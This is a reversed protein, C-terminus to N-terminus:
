APVAHLPPPWQSRLWHQEVRGFPTPRPSPTASALRAAVVAEPLVTLSNEESFGPLVIASWRVKRGGRRATTPLVCLAASTGCGGFDAPPNRVFNFGSMSENYFIQGEIEPPTMIADVPSGRDFRGLYKVVAAPSENSAVVIPWHRVHGRLVAPREAGIV